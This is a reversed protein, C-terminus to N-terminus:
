RFKEFHFKVGKGGFQKMNRFFKKKEKMQAVYQLSQLHLIKKFHMKRKQFIEYNRFIKSFFIIKKFVTVFELVLRCNM